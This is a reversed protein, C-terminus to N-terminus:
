LWHILFECCHGLAPLLIVVTVGASWVPEVDRFSETLAGLFGSSLGRYAFEATMAGFAADFGATLNTFFFICGRILTSLIASKWHWRHGLMRVPHCILKRMVEGVTVTKRPTLELAKKPFM